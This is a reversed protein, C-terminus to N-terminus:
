AFEMAPTIPLFGTLEELRTREKSPSSRSQAFSFNDGRKSGNRRGLFHDGAQNLGPDVNEPEIHRVCRVIPNSANDPVNTGSGRRPLPKNSDHEVGL